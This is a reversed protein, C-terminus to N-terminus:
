WAAWTRDARRRPFGAGAYMQMWALVTRSPLLIAPDEDGFAVQTVTTQCLGSGCVGVMECAAKRVQRMATPSTGVAEQGYVGAALIGPKWLRIVRGGRKKLCRKIVMARAVRKPVVAIRKAQIPVRRGPRHSRDVGLYKAAGDVQVQVGTDALIQESLKDATAKRACLLVRKGSVVLGM